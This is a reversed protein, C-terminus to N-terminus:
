DAEATRNQRFGKTQLLRWVAEAAKATDDLPSPTWDELRGSFPRAVGEGQMRAHFRDFKNSGGELAVIHVPKGSTCAESIMTVSDSTVILHDSLALIGFYPNPPQGDWFWVPLGQLAERLASEAATGTRRSATVVLGAGQERCLTALERGLRQATQPPFRHVKSAGGVLVGVLPRPLDAFQPAFVEAAEALRDPTIRTLAGVSELAQAGVPRDHAPAIVLDFRGFPLQPDQIQVALCAGKSARRIAAAPAAMRRGCAIVLDPWPPKLAGGILDAQPLPAPSPVPTPKVGQLPALWLRPPLWLWPARPTLRMLRPKVGMAEALGLSQNEHGARGDSLVWCRLAKRDAQTVVPADEPLITEGGRGTSDERSNETSNETSNGTGNTM